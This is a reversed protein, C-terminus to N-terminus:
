RRKRHSKPKVMVQDLPKGNRDYLTLKLHKKNASMILAGVTNPGETWRSRILDQNYQLAGMAQGRENDASPTQIYVTGRSGDTEKDAYLANTRVYIHNNGSIALDVRLEDFLQKWRTYQSSRGDGGMFWQYHSVVVLYKSPNDRVVAKMWQQAETLGEESKMAENNLMVFLTNGYTFYYCVGLQDGYGNDPNNNVNRFFANSQAHQRTMDDHNGNVGAWVYRSFTSDAYLTPWFSYSGGWASLDGVHLMMDFPQKHQKELQQIMSMGAKQRNPLPAYVHIDSIVGMNWRDSGPATRFMRIDKDNNVDITGSTLKYQYQTGPKLDQLTVTNRVFKADEYFDEGNPRKSYISDFVSCLSQDAEITVAKKWNKDTIQTYTIYSKGSGLEQHWNLRIETSANQGPNAIVTYIKYQANAKQLGLFLILVLFLQKLNM